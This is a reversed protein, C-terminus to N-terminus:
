KAAKSSAKYQKLYAKKFTKMWSAGDTYELVLQDAIAGRRNIADQQALDTALLTQLVRTSKQPYGLSVAHKMFSLSLLPQKKEQRFTQAAGMSFLSSNKSKIWEVTTLRNITYINKIKEQYFSESSEYQEIAQKFQERAILNDIDIISKQYTVADTIEKLMLEGKAKSTACRPLSDAIRQAKQIQLEAFIYNGNEMSKRAVTIVSDYQAMLNTCEQSMLRSNLGAVANRIDKDEQIGFRRIKEMAKDMEQRATNINLLIFSGVWELTKLMVPRAALAVNQAHQPVITLLYQEKLVIAKDYERLAGDFDKIAALEKGRIMHNQYQEQRIKKIQLQSLKDDPIEKPNNRATRSADEAKELALEYDKKQLALKSEDIYNQYISKWARANYKDCTDVCGALGFSNCLDRSKSIQAISEKYMKKSQMSNAEKIQRYYLDNAMRTGAIKQSDNLNLYFTRRLNLLRQAASDTQNRRIQIQCIMLESPAHLLHGSVAKEFEHAKQFNREAQYQDYAMWQLGRQYYVSAYEKKGENLRQDSQNVINKLEAFKAMFMGPDHIRLNLDEMLRKNEIGVIFSRQQDVANRCVTFQEPDQFNLKGLSQIRNELGAAWYEQILNMRQQLKVQVQSSYQIQVQRLEMRYGSFNLTDQHSFAGMLGDDRWEVLGLNWQRVTQGVPNILHIQYGFQDPWLQRAISFQQFATDGSMQFYRSSVQLQYMGTYVELLRTEYGWRLTFETAYLSKNLRSSLTNLINQVQSQPALNAFQQNVLYATEYSQQFLIRNQGFGISFVSVIM